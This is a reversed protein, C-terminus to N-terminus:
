PEACAPGAMEAGGRFSVCLLAANVGQARLWWLVALRNAYRRFTRSWDSSPDVRLDSRVTDFARAIRAAAPAGASSAPSLFESVRSKTEVLIPRDGALVLRDWLPGCAPWLETLSGSLRGLGPRRLASADRHEPYGDLALPPLRTLSAPRAAAIAALRM